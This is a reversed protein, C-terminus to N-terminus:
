RVEDVFRKSYYYRDWMCREKYMYSNQNVPYIM